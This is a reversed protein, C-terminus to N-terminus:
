RQGAREMGSREHDPFLVTLWRRAIRELPLRLRIKAAETGLREALGPEDAVRVMARLFADEDGVPTLIGSVGNEISQAAGGVPCDTVVSPIGMALAELMSNSIGEHDSSSVFMAADVMREEVNAAFGPLSVRDEIGLERILEELPKREPGGGYVVLTYDPHDEAFRKFARFLMPLNKQKALRCAAVIVHSRTGEFPEPLDDRVPNPIVTSKIRVAGPYFGRVYDTQFVVHDALPMAFHKLIRSVISSPQHRPDGRESFVVRNDVFLSAVACKIVSSANLAVVTASPREKILRIIRAIESIPRFFRPGEFPEPELFRVKESLPYRDAGDVKGRLEVVTVKCGLDAWAGALESLVREAGGDSLAPSFAIIERTPESANGM